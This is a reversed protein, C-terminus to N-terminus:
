GGVFKGVGCIEIRMCPQGIFSLPIYRLASIRIGGEFKRIAVDNYANKNGLIQLRCYCRLIEEFTLVIIILFANICLFSINKNKLM